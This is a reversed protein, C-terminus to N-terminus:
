LNKLCFKRFVFRKVLLYVGGIPVHDAIVHVVMQPRQLLGGFVRGGPRVAADAAATGSAVETAAAAEAPAPEAANGGAPQELLVVVHDMQMKYRVNVHRDDVRRTERLRFVKM